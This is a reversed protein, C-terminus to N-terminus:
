YVEDGKITTTDSERDYSAVINTINIYRTACGIADIKFSRTGSIEGADLAVDGDLKITISTAGKIREAQGTTLATYTVPKEGEGEIGGIVSYALPEFKGKDKFDAMM